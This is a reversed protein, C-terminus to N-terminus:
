QLENLKATTKNWLNPDNAQEGNLWRHFPLDYESIIMDKGDELITLRSIHLNFISLGKPNIYSLIKRIKSPDRDNAITIHFIFSHELDYPKPKCFKNLEKAMKWRLDDLM